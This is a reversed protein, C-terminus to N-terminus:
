EAVRCVFCGWCLVSGVEWSLREALSADFRDLLDTPVGEALLADRHTAIQHRMRVFNEPLHWSWDECAIDGFGAGALDGRHEGATAWRSVANVRGFAAAQEPSVAPALLIDSYALVGGPRLVRLAERFVAERDLAHCIAEQSLVLDFTGTWAVPLEEFSGTWTRILPEIGLSAAAAENVRNHHECLDVCTVMAGTERALLHATGGPGAGLDLISAPRSPWLRERALGLLRRTSAETAEAMTSVGHGYIGYHIVPQGDGMVQRYFPSGAGPSYQARVLEHHRTEPSM